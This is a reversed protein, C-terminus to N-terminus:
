LRCMFVIVFNEMSLSFSMPKALAVGPFMAMTIVFNIILLIVFRPNKKFVRFATELSM